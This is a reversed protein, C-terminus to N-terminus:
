VTNAPFPKIIDLTRWLAFSGVIWWFSDPVPILSIWTGVFEDLTFQKPDKGFKLEFHNGFNVGIIFSFIIM